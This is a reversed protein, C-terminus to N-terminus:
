DWELYEDEELLEQIRREIIQNKNKQRVELSKRLEQLQNELEMVEERRREEKKDFLTKLEEKLDRKIIEREAQKAKSYKAALAEAKVEAEFIKQEREWMAKERKVMFPIKMNKYQSERLLEFYKEKNVNKIVELEIKLEKNINKLLEKEDEESM